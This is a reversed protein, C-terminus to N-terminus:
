KGIVWNIIESEVNEDHIKYDFDINNIKIANSFNNIFTNCSNYDDKNTNKFKVLFINMSVLSENSEIKKIFEIQISENKILDKFYTMIGVKEIEIDSDGNKIAKENPYIILADNPKIKKTNDDFHIDKFHLPKLKRISKFNKAFKFLRKYHGDFYRPDKITNNIEIKPNHSYKKWGNKNVFEGTNIDKYHDQQSLETGTFKGKKLVVKPIPKPVTKVIKSRQIDM